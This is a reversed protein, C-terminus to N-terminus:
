PDQRLGAIRKDRQEQWDLARKEYFAAAGSEGIRSYTDAANLDREIMINYVQEVLLLFEGNLVRPINPNEYRYLEYEGILELALEYYTLDYIAGKSTALTQHIQWLLAYPRWRTDTDRLGAGRYLWGFTSAAVPAAGNRRQASGMIFLTDAKIAPPPNVALLDESVAITQSFERSAYMLWCVDRALEAVKQRYERLQLTPLYYTTLINVDYQAANLRGSNYLTDADPALRDIFAQVPLERLAVITDRTDGGKAILAILRADHDPALYLFIWQDLQVSRSFAAPEGSRDAELNAQIRMILADVVRSGEPFLQTLQLTLVVCDDWRRESFAEDAAKFLTQEDSNLQASERTIGVGPKYILRGKGAPGEYRPEPGSQCAGALLTLLLAASLLVGRGACRAVAVRAASHGRPSSSLQQNTM